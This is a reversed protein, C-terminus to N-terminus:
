RTLMLARQWPGGVEFQPIDRFEIEM